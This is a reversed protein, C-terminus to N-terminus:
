RARSLGAALYMVGGVLGTAVTIIYVGLSLAMATAAPVGAGAFLGVYTLERVGLGGFAPLLLAIATLPVFVLFTALPLSLGLGHAIAVNWGIQLLNFALSIALGRAITRRGYSATAEALAPLRVIRVARGVWDARQGLRGWWPRRLFWAALLGAGFLAAILAVVGPSAAGPWVVAAALGMALLVIIGLYRDVVVSNLAAGLRKTDQALEAIRVADGGFGTPLIVNFFGGVFYWMVLERLPRRIGLADLLTQWRAARIVVGLLFIVWALFLWWLHIQRLTEWIERWHVQRFILALLIVSVAVQILGRLRHRGGAAAREGDANRPGGGMTM